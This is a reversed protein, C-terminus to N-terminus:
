SRKEPKIIELEVLYSFMDNDYNYIERLVKEFVPKSFNNRMGSVWSQWTRESIRGRRYMFCQENCLDYYNFILERVPPYETVGVTNGLIVPVPIEKMLERYQQDFGDEFQAVALKNAQHLQYIIIIIGIVSTVATIVDPWNTVTVIWDMMTVVLDTM